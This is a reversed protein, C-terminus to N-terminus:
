ASQSQKVLRLAFSAAKGLIGSAVWIVPFWMTSFFLSVLLLAQFWLLAIGEPSPSPSRWLSLPRIKRAIYWYRAAATVITLLPTAM